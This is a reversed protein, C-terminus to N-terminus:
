LIITMPVMFTFCGTLHLHFIHQFSCFFFFYAIPHFRKILSCKVSKIKKKKLSIYGTFCISHQDKNIKSMFYWESKSTSLHDNASYVQTYTFFFSVTKNAASKQFMMELMM